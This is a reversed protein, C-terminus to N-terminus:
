TLIEDNEATGSAGTVKTVIHWKGDDKGKSIARILQNEDFVAWAGDDPLPNDGACAWEYKQDRTWTGAVMESLPVLADASMYHQDGMALRGAGIGQPGNTPVPNKFPPNPPAGESVNERTFTKMPDSTPPDLTFKTSTTLGYATSGLNRGLASLKPNVPKGCSAKTCRQVRLGARLAPTVRGALDGLSGALGRMSLVASAAAVDADDELGLEDHGGADAMLQMGGRQQAVHALEHALLADGVLTGPQFEDSGFAIENGVTFARAGMSDAIGAATADTHIRVASLDAGYVGGVHSAIGADLARGAGLSARTAAAEGSPRSGGDRGKFDLRVLGDGTPSPGSGDADGAAGGGAVMDAASTAAAAAPVTTRVEQELGTAPMAGYKATQEDLQATFTDAMPTLAILPGIQQTVAGRVQTIFAGKHLQTPGLPAPANDEVILGPAAAGGAAPAAGGASAGAAPLDDRQVSRAQLYRSVAANGAARQLAIIHGASSEPASGHSVNAGRAEGPRSSPSRASEDPQEVERETM